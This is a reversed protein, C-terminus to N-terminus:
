RVSPPSVPLASPRAQYGNKNAYNFTCTCASCCAFYRCSRFRFVEVERTLVFKAKDNLKQTFLEHFDGTIELVKKGMDNSFPFSLFFPFHLGSLSFFGEHVQGLKVYMTPLPKLLFSPFPWSSCDAAIINKSLLM